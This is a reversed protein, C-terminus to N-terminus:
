AARSAEAHPLASGDRSSVTLPMKFNMCRLPIMETAARSGMATNGSSVRRAQVSAHGAVAKSIGAERNPAPRNGVHRHHNADMQRGDASVVWSDKQTVQDDRRYISDVTHADLLQLQVTDNRSSKLDYQKGDFRHLQFRRFLRVGNNEDPEFALKESIRRRSAPSHTAPSRPAEAEPGYPSRTPM